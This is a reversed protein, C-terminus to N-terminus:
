NFNFDFGSKFLLTAHEDDIDIKVNLMKNQKDLTLKLSMLLQYFALDLATFDTIHLNFITKSKINKLLENKIICANEINLDGKMKIGLADKNEDDDIFRISVNKM